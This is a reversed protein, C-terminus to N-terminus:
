FPLIPLACAGYWTVRHHPNTLFCMKAVGNQRNSIYLTLKILPWSSSIPYNVRSSFRNKPNLGTLM